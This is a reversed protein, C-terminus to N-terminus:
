AGVLLNVGTKEEARGEPTHVRLAFISTSDAKTSASSNPPHPGGAGMDDPGGGYGTGGGRGPGLVELKSGGDGGGTCRM